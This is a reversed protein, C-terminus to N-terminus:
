KASEASPPPLPIAQESIPQQQKKKTKKTKKQSKPSETSSQQQANDVEMKSGDKAEEPQQKLTVDKSETTTETSDDDKQQEGDPKSEGTTEDARKAAEDTSTPAVPEKTETKEVEQEVEMNTTQQQAASDASQNQSESETTMTENKSSETKEKTESSSSPPLPIPENNEQKADVDMIVSAQSEEMKDACQEEKRESEEEMSQDQQVPLPAKTELLSITEQITKIANKRAQRVNERGETEIDDLKILERTLMEDLYIYEKDQRSGGAYRRVQEALDDVEKQVEAVKELPDKPVVQKPKQTEQQQQQQPQQQQEQQTHQKQQQQPRYQPQQQQQQPQQQQQQQRHQPQQHQYYQPQKQYQPEQHYQPQQHQQFQQHRRMPKFSSEFGPDFTSEYFGPPWQRTFHDNFHSPRHFSPPSPQRQHFAPPPSPAKDSTFRPMVPEDRGEVFIPIHRVNSSPKSPSQSRQQQNHQPTIDVRSVFRQGQGPQSQQQESQGQQQRNEPPASMSRQGRDGMEPSMEMGRRRQQQGIDVTNRLGYQPIASSSTLDPEDGSRSSVASAGSAASSGSAQSRADEDVQHQQGQQQQNDSNSGGSDRRRHRRDRLLSNGFSWPPGRLHEALEPHRAALDDLHSRIGDRRPRDFIDADDDFSFGPFSRDLDIGEGFKSAADVIVPSDM